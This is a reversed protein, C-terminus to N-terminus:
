STSDIHNRLETISGFRLRGQPLQAEISGDSYLAYAMGEVVGSKLISVPASGAAEGTVPSPRDVTPQTSPAADGGARPLAAPVASLPATVPPVAAIHAPPPPASRRRQGSPWFAEFVSGKQQDPGNANPLKREMRPATGGSAVAKAGGVVSLNKVEGIVEEGHEARAQLSLSAHTEEVAPANELRVLNPFKERLRELAANEASAPPAATASPASAPAAATATPAAIPRPEARSVPNPVPPSPARPPAISREAGTTVTAAPAEGPRAARPMPRAALTREIGQLERVVLGLGILILGGIAAITGPVVIDSEITGHGNVGNAVLALGLAATLAGLLLVVVYM